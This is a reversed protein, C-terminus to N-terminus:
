QYSSPIIWRKTKICYYSRRDDRQIISTRCTKKESKGEEKSKSKKKSQRGSSPKESSKKESKEESKEESKSCSCPKCNKFGHNSFYYRLEFCRCFSHIGM